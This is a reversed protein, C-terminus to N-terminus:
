PQGIHTTALESAARQLREAIRLVVERKEDRRMVLYSGFENPVGTPSVRVLRGSNAYQHAIPMRLLAVGLGAEAAALVLDYEEFRRDENKARVRLGAAGFWSRWQRKDSDHLLPLAAIRDARANAGLRAAISPAAVPYLREGFLLHSTCRQWRGAGYRIALDTEGAELDLVRHELQLELHVDRPSGQLMPMRTMLWLRALSPVASLRVHPIAVNPRRWRDASDQIMSLAQEAIAVFRQGAPTTRVGRAHREFLATGLWHEVVQVRRSVAGHTIGLAAAAASFSGTRHSALVASLGEFPPM